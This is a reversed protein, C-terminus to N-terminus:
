SIPKTAHLISTAMWPGSWWMRWGAGHVSLRAADSSRLVHTYEHLQFIGIIM